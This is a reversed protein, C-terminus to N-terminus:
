VLDLSSSQPNIDTTFQPQSAFGWLRSGLSAGNITVPANVNFYYATTEGTFQYNTNLLQIKKDDVILHLPPYYTLTVQYTYGDASKIARVLFTGGQNFYFCGDTQHFEYYDKLNEPDSVSDGWPAYSKDGDRMVVAIENGVTMVGEYTNDAIKVLTGIQTNCNGWTGSWMTLSDQAMALTCSSVMAIILLLPRQQQKM